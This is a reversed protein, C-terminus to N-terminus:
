LGAPPRRPRRHRLEPAAPGAMGAGPRARRGAAPHHHHRPRPQLRLRVAPHRRLSRHHRAHAAIAQWCLLPDAALVLRATGAAAPTAIM